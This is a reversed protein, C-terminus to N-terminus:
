WGRSGPSPGPGAPCRELDREASRLSCEFPRSARTPAVRDGPLRGDGDTRRRCPHARVGRRRARRAPVVGGERRRRRGPRRVRGRVRLAPVRRRRRDPVARRRPHRLGARRARRARRPPDARDAQRAEAAAARHEYATRSPNGSLGSSRGPRATTSCFRIAGPDHWDAMSWAYAGGPGRGLFARNGPLVIRAHAGVERHVGERLLVLRDALRDPGHAVRLHRRVGGVHVLVGAVRLLGGVRQLGRVEM